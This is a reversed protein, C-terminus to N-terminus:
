DNGSVSATPKSKIAELHRVIEEAAEESEAFRLTGRGSTV